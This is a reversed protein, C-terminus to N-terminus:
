MGVTHGSAPLPSEAALLSNELGPMTPIAHFPENGVQYKYVTETLLTLQSRRGGFSLVACARVPMIRIVGIRTKTTLFTHESKAM